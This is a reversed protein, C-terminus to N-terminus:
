HDLDWALAIRMGIGASRVIVEAGTRYAPRCGYTIDFSCGGRAVRFDGDSPGTYDTVTRGPYKGYWDGCWESVNGFVDYMGLANPSKEGVPHTAQKANEAYWGTDPLVSPARQDVGLRCAYEWEAETPLRYVYGRPLRGASRELQTLRQCFEVAAKWTIFEVPRRPGKYHSPSLRMVERWEDQTVEYKGLWFGHTLVVHTLPLEDDEGNEDGMTFRGPPVFVLPASLSQLNFGLHSDARVSRLFEAQTERFGRGDPGEHWARVTAPLGQLADGPEAAWGSVALMTGLLVSSLAALGRPPNM